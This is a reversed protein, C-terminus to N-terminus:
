GRRRRLAGMGLLAAGFLAISAPEPVLAIQLNDIRLTQAADAPLNATRFGISSFSSTASQGTATVDAGTLSAMEEASPDLWLAFSNYVASGGTKTLYGFVVYTQDQVMQPGAVYKATANTRVFAGTNSSSDAKLGINPGTSGGNANGVYLALFDNATLPAGSYQFDFRFTVAGSITTSLARTAAADNSKTFQLSDNTVSNGTTTIWGGNFGSGGNVTSFSDSAVVTTAVAMASGSILFTAAVAINRFVTKM